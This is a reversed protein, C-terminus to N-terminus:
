WDEAKEIVLKNKKIKFKLVAHPNEIKIWGSRAPINIYRNALLMFSLWVALRIAEIDKINEPNMVVHISQPVSDRAIEKKGSQRKEMSFYKSDLLEM